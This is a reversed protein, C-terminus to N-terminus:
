RGRSTTVEMWEAVLSELEAGWSDKSVAGHTRREDFASRAAVHLGDKRM